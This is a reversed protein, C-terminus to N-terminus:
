SKEKNQAWLEAKNRLERLFPTKGDRYRRITLLSRQFSVTLYLYELMSVDDQVIKRKLNSYQAADEPHTRLYDRM